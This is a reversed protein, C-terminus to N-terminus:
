YLVKVFKESGFSEFPKTPFSVITRRSSHQKIYNIKYYIRNSRDLEM